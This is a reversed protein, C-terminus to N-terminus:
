NKFSSIVIDLSSENGARRGREFGMGIYYVDFALNSGTRNNCVKLGSDWCISLMGDKDKM